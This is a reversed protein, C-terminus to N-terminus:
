PQRHKQSYHMLYYGALVWSAAFNIFPLAWHLPNVGTSAPNFALAALWSLDMFLLLLSAAKFAWWFARDEAPPRWDLLNRVAWGGAYLYVTLGVFLLGYVIGGSLLSASLVLLTGPIVALAAALGFKRSHKKWM